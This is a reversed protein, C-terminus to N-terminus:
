NDTATLKLRKMKGLAEHEQGSSGAEATGLSGGPTTDEARSPLPRGHGAEAGALPGAAGLQGGSIEEPGLDPELRQQKLM